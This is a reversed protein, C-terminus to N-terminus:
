KNKLNAIETGREVIINYNVETLEVLVCDIKQARVAEFHELRAVAILEVVVLVLYVISSLVLSSLSFLLLYIVQEM